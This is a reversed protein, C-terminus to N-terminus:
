KGAPGDEIADMRHRVDRVWKTVYVEMEMCETLHKMRYKILKEKAESAEKGLRTNEEKLFSNEQELMQKKSALMMYWKKWHQMQEDVQTADTMPMESAETEETAADPQPENKRKVAKAPPTSTTGAGKKM